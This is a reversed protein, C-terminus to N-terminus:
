DGPAFADEQGPTAGPLVLAGTLVDLARMSAHAGRLIPRWM